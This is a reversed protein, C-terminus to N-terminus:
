SYQEIFEETDMAGEYWSVIVPREESGDLYNEVQRQFYKLIDDDFAVKLKDFDRCRELEGYGM